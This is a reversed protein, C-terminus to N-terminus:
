FFLVVFFLVLATCWGRGGVVVDCVVVVVVVDCVVVVVDCVVVVLAFHCFANNTDLISSAFYM